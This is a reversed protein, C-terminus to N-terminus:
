FGARWTALVGYAPPASARHGPQLAAVGDLQVTGFGTRHTSTLTFDTERGSPAANFRRQTFSLAGFYTEPADALVAIFRGGEIRLPQAASFRLSACPLGLRACGGEAGVKWATSWAATELSLFRGGLRTRGLSVDAFLTVGNDLGWVASASGFATRSPLSMGTRTPIYAGLPGMPENLEGLTVGGRLPGSRAQASARLYSAGDETYRLDPSRRQGGGAEATFRWPGTDFAGMVARDSQALATFADANRALYPNATAKGSWASFALPGNALTLTVDHGVDVPSWPAMAALPLADPQVSAAINLRNGAALAVDVGAGRRRASAAPSIISPRAGAYARGLDTAFPRQYVDWGVTGLAASSQVADGFAAGMSTGAVSDAVMGSGATPVSLSGLPAFARSLDLAGWGYVADNGPAGLDRASHFLIDLAARGSLNPFAQLLLALGGSVHPVAFSTGSVQWCSTGNCDTIVSEGPAFLFGGAAPGAANSFSSRQGASNLSGVGVLAGAFRPDVAYRAPWDSVDAGDNGTAATIILGADAARQLAAEVNAGSAGKGTGLSINIVRAGNAVAYDIGRALDASTFCTPDGCSGGPSDARISLITSEFAVGVTGQNNFNSAIIGAVYTGHRDGVLQNRGAVLDISAAAGRGSLEPGSTDVGTDLVAVTIGKGSAGRSYAAEAHIAGVGYSRTFEPSSVSPGVPTVVTAPAPTVGPTPSPTATGTGGGGGGGGCAALGIPAAILLFVRALATLSLRKTM